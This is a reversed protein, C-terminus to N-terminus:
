ANSNSSAILLNAQTGFNKTVNNSQVYTDAADPPSAAWALSLTVLGILVPVAFSILRKTM